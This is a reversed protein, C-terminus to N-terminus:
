GAVISYNAPLLTDISLLLIGIGLTDTLAQSRGDTLTTEMMLHVAPIIVELVSRTATAGLITSFVGVFGAM